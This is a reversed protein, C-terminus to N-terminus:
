AELIEDPDLEVVGPVPPPASRVSPDRVALVKVRYEIDRGVLPHLLRVKAVKDTASIIKFRVQSGLAPDKGEFVSGPALPAGSPFDSCPMEKIPLMEETGFAERAPIQGSREDGPELGDLRKELGPLMRGDGHVYRLPGTRASSELVGGGKVKLEYELEVSLGSRIKMASEAYDGRANSSLANILPNRDLQL